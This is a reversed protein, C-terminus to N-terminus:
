GKGLVRRLSEALKPVTDYKSVDGPEIWRYETHEKDITIGDAKVSFLFPKINWRVGLGSDVMSFRRGEKELRFEDKALGTEEAIERAAAELPTEGKEISGSVGAWLGRYTRVSGSRKLILIKGGHELFSTVIEATRM